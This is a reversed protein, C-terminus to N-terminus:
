IVCLIGTGTELKQSIPSPLYAITFLYCLLIVYICMCVVKLWIEAEDQKSNVM